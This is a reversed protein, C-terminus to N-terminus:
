QKSGAPAKDLLVKGALLRDVASIVQEPKLERLCKMAGQQETLPCERQFCPGCDVDLQEIAVNDSLPPTFKPSTSGYVVVLPRGLAAAIHMLGSDNSVVASAYSLIDVAEALATKGALNICHKNQEATLHNIIGEVVVRDNASGFLAVQWGKDIFTKAVEAYHAEPWRKAPGFEAGPCLALLPSSPPCTHDKIIQHQALVADLAESDVQLAPQPMLAPLPEGPKYALAVFRQVMLPYREKNLLRIDNLLGYRMEGRWGTRMPINAFLPVLGSKLSNPLLISQDYAEPQLSKGLRYRMALQLKGHGVPMAIGRRVQPMRALIPLSWAPALVDILCDPNQQKLAIFLSQAMVMDGVWSPGVILIKKSSSPM